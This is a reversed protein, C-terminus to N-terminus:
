APRARDAGRSDLEGVGIGAAGDVPAPEAATTPAPGLALLTALAAGVVAPVAPRSRVPRRRAMSVLSGTPHTRHVFDVDARPSRDPLDTATFM